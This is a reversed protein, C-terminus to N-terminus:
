ISLGTIVDGHDFGQPTVIWLTGDLLEIKEDEGFIGVDVMRMVEDGGFRRAESRADTTATAM